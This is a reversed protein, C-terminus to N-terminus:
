VEQSIFTLIREIQMPHISHGFNPVIQSHVKCGAQGLASAATDLELIPIVPDAMGHSLLVSPRPGSAAMLPLAVRGSLSVVARPPTLSTAAIQLSMIAGQSFGVLITQGRSLGVRQEEDAIVAEVRPMAAVVREHRNAETVGKVSFWQRGNGGMDFQDYGNLAVVAATPLGRALAHAVPEMAAASAGVGHLLLILVEPAQGASPSIRITVDTSQSQSM